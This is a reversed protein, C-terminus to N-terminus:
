TDVQTSANGDRQFRRNGGRHHDVAPSHGFQVSDRVAIVASAMQQRGKAFGSLCGM